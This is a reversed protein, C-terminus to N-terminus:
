NATRVKESFKRVAPNQQSNKSFVFGIRREPISEEMVFELLSGSKLEELVFEKIVCAVGLGVKAFDILLDMTTVEIQNEAFFDQKLFYKDVYQRTVNNKNLMLFTAASVLEKESLEAAAKEHMASARATLKELYEPSVVFTDHITLLPQFNLSGLRDSEGVLGIDLTGNELATITEYTSQCSISIKINPNEAIFGKLYSM